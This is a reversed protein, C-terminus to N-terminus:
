YFEAFPDATSSVRKNSNSSPFIFNDSFLDDITPNKQLSQCYIALKDEKSFTKVPQSQQVVSGFSPYSFKTKRDSELESMAELNVTEINKNSSTDIMQSERNSPCEMIIQECKNDKDLSILDFPNSNHINQQFNFDQGFNFFNNIDQNPMHNRNNDKPKHATTNEKSKEIKISELNVSRVEVGLKRKKGPESFDEIDPQEKNVANIEKFFKSKSVELDKTRINFKSDLYPNKMFITPDYRMRRDKQAFNNRMQSLKAELDKYTHYKSSFNEYLQMEIFFLSLLPQNILNFRDNLLNEFNDFTSICKSM